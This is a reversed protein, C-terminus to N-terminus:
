LGEKTPAECLYTNAHRKETRLEGDVVAVTRQYATGPTITRLCGDCRHDKAAVSTREALIVVLPGEYPPRCCDYTCVTM